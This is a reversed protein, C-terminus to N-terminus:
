FQDIAALILANNKLIQILTEELSTKTFVAQSFTMVNINHQKFTQKKLM